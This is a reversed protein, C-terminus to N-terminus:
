SSHCPFTRSVPAYADRHGNKVCTRILGRNDPHFGALPGSSFTYCASGGSAVQEQVCSPDFVEFARCGSSEACYAGCEAITKSHGTSTKQDPDAWYGSNHEAFGTPCPPLPPISTGEWKPIANRLLGLPGCGPPRPPPSPPPPPPPTCPPGPASPKCTGDFKTLRVFATQHELLSFSMRECSIGLDKHNQIDRARYAVTAPGTINLVAAFDVQTVAAADNRNLVLVAIDGNALHRAWQESSCGAPAAIKFAPLTWPDQNIAITENNMLIAEIAPDRKRIDNTAMLITPFMVWM